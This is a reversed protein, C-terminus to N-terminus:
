AGTGVDLAVNRAFGQDPPVALRRDLDSTVEWGYRLLDRDSLITVHCRCNFGNPPFHTHWFWHDIPLIIGQWLRHTDRVRHDGATMYRFYYKTGPRAWQLRWAQEWRGAARAGFTEMRWVLTSHWGANGDRAWGNRKTIAEYQDRFDDKTGGGAFIDTLASLLDRWMGAAMDDVVREAKETARRWAERWDDDSLALRRRLFAIAEAFPLDSDPM